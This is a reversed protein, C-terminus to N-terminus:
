SQIIMVIRRLILLSLLIFISKLVMPSFLRGRESFDQITNDRLSEEYYTDEASNNVNSHPEITEATAAQQNTTLKKSNSQLNDESQSIDSTESGSNNSLDSKSDASHERSGRSTSPRCQEPQQNNIANKNENPQVLLDKILGCTECSWSRSKIALKRRESDSFDLSGIARNSKTPMFAILALLATRVSWSPQRTSAYFQM